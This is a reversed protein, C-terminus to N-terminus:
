FTTNIININGTQESINLRPLTGDDNIVRLNLVFDTNNVLKLNVGNIDIDDIRPSSFVKVDIFGGVDILSGAGYNVPYSETPTKYSVFIQDGSQNFVIEADVVDTSDNYVYTFNNNDTATYIITTSRDDYISSLTMVVDDPEDGVEEDTIGSDFSVGYTDFPSFISDEKPSYPGFLDEQIFPRDESILAYYNLEFSVSVTNDEYNSTVNLGDVSVKNDVTRFYALMKKFDAYNMSVGLGVQTSTFSEKFKTESTDPDKYEGDSVLIMSRSMTYSPIYLTEIENELDILSRIIMEQTTLSPFKAEVKDIYDLMEEIEDLYIGKRVYETSLLNLETNLTDIEMQLMDMDENLPKHIFFWFIGILVVGIAILVLNREKATM